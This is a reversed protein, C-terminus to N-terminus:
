RSSSSGFLYSRLSRIQAPTLSEAGFAHYNRVARLQAPTLSDSVGYLYSGISRVQAPTLLGSAGFAHYNRVARLQAPTLSDSPNLTKQGSVSQGATIADLYGTAPIAASGLPQERIESSIADLYGTVPIAASGLPQERIEPSIADLYGSMPIPSSLIAPQASVSKQTQTTGTDFAFASVAWTVAAALAATGVVLGLLHGRRIRVTAPITASVNM